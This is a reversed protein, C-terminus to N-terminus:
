KWKISPVWNPLWSKEREKRFREKEAATTDRMKVHKSPDRLLEYATDAFQEYGSGVRMLGAGLYQELDPGDPNPIWINKGDRDQGPVWIPLPDPSAVQKTQKPLSMWSAPTRGMAAAPAATLTRPSAPPTGLPETQSTVKVGTYTGGPRMTPVPVGTRNLTRLQYDVLATDPRSAIPDPKKEFADGLAGGLNALAAPLTSVSPGTTTSFGASGGNRIATLPNFGAKTAEKVMKGYDVSTTTTEKKKSGFLSGVVGLVGGLLSM